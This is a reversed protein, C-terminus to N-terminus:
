INICSRSIFNGPSLSQYLFLYHLCTVTVSQQIIWGSSFMFGCKFIILYSNMSFLLNSCLQALGRLWGERQSQLRTPSVWWSIAAFELLEWSFLSSLCSSAKKGWVNLVLFCFVMQLAPPDIFVLIDVVFLFSPSNTITCRFLASVFPFVEVSRLLLQTSHRSSSLQNLLEMPCM